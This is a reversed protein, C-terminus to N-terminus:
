QVVGSAVQDAVGVFGTPHAREAEYDYLPSTLKNLRTLVRFVLSKSGSIPFFVM